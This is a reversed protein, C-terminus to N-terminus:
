YELGLRQAERTLEDAATERLRRNEVTLTQITDALNMAARIGDRFVAELHANNPREGERICSIPFGVAQRIVAIEAASQEAPAQPENGRLELETMRKQAMVHGLARTIDARATDSWGTYELLEGLHHKVATLQRRDASLETRTSGRM